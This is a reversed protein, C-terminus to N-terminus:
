AIIDTYSGQRILPIIEGSSTIADVNIDDSGIMFDHHILSVNCGLELLEDDNMGETNPAASSYGNGLAVHCCANEDFLVSNFVLGSQYIPSSNDVLALEGLYYAQPCIEFMKDLVEKNSDAGYDVVKGEEFTFWAGEIQSGMVETPRTAKAFGTTGRFDPTTFNEFTPINPLFRYEGRCSSTGGKWVGNPLCKVKLDTHENKFHIYAIDLEELKDARDNMGKSIERWYQSPNEHDLHMIKVLQEWLLEMAREEIEEPFVSLAWKPTPLAGVTWATEGSGGAKALAKGVKRGAAQVIGLKSQDLTGMLEPETPGFFGVRAWQEEVMMQNRQEMWPPLYDLQDEPSHNIRAALEKPDKAELMVYGAGLKYAEEVIINGFERHYAELGIFVKQKAQLNVGVELMLRAYKRLIEEM